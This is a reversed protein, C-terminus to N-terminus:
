RHLQKNLKFESIRHEHGGSNDTGRMDITANFNILSSNSQNASSPNSVLNWEGTAIWTKNDNDSQVSTFGGGAHDIILNDLPSAPKSSQNSQGVINTSSPNSTANEDNQAYVTILTPETIEVMIIVAVVLVSIILVPANKERIM